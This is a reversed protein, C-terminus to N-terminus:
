FVWECKPYVPGQEGPSKTPLDHLPSEPVSWYDEVSSENDIDPLEAFGPLEAFDSLKLLDHTWLCILLVTWWVPKGPSFQVLM